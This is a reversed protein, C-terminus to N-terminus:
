KEAGKANKIDQVSVRIEQSLNKLDLMAKRIRTGAANNGQEYFKTFDDEVDKLLATLKSYPNM